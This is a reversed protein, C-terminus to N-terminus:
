VPIIRQENVYWIYGTVNPYRGTARLLRVYRGVQEKHKEVAKSSGFKYDVVEVNGNPFIMIRDPRRSIYDKRLLPREAIVKADGGFWRRAMPHSELASKLDNEVQTARAESMAGSLMVRKVAAPLDTAVKVYELVTHKLNGESRPDTDDEEEITHLSATDTKFKLFQPTANSPYDEMVVMKHGTNKEKPTFTTKEGCTFIKLKKDEADDLALMEEKHLRTIDSQEVDPTSMFYDRIIHGITLGSDTKKKENRPAVAYIYLERKARTFAVYASNLDDMKVMDFYQTLLDAHSTHQLDGCIEVPVFPPAEIEDHPAVQPTVWRWESKQESPLTDAFNWDAHPVIVCEYELGKSKHITIVQVADTGEPSAVAAKPGKREWWKLFSAIDTPHSECYETVIDQFAAIFIADNSRLQPSLFSAAVAEVIAPLAMAPMQTLLESVADFDAGEKVFAELRQAMPMDNEARLAYFKFNPSIDRWNGLGSKKREEGTRITANNGRAITHLVGLIIEVAESAAVKLSQESVYHIEQEGEPLIRNYARMAEIVAEGQSHTSVLVAIDRQRYGRARLQQVIRPLEDFIRAAIDAKSSNIIHAEVYGSNREEMPIQVVNGYLSQNLRLALYEFISNNFAVVRGQSRFNRNEGEGEGIPTVRSGFAKSVGSTILSPDANRFRYISQKADGIILNENNRSLSESLLPKINEWQLRSTDQFEDILFHNLRTGLREYVFPADSDSIVGRLLVATEGLEVANHEALYERRKGTVIDFLALYPLNRSYVLWNRTEIDRALLVWQEFDNLVTQALSLINHHQPNADMWEMVKPREMNERSLPFNDPPMSSWELPTSSKSSPYINTYARHFISIHGYSTHLEDPLANYLAKVSKELKAFAEKLPEEYRRSMDLYYQVFRPAQAFYKEVKPRVEKYDENELKGASKLFGKYPSSGIVPNKKQFINWGKSKERDVLTRVWFPTTTDDANNDIEELTADIGVQSLYESDLEVQYADSIDTEYAFTRLVTQFFSDITSVNFDSYNELLINLALRCTHCIKQAMAMEEKRLSGTLKRSSGILDIAFEELYDPLSDGPKFNSLQYLRDVIRMQMENTAKNTFTIALIHRASDLLEPKTRLRRRREGEPRITIFYWIYKKALTYTKGSGASARQLQIM